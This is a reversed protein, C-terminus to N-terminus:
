PADANMADFKRWFLSRLKYRISDSLDYDGLAASLDVLLARDVDQPISPKSTVLEARREVGSGDLWTDLVRGAIRDMIEATEDDTLFDTRVSTGLPTASSCAVADDTLEAARIEGAPSSGVRDPVPAARRALLSPSPTPSTPAVAAAAAPNRPSVAADLAETSLLDLGDAAARLNRSVGHPEGEHTRVALVIVQVGHAQAEEVAETLDDDGSVLYIARAATNRAQAILDLGMRLDVGKQEGNYGTRGLRLKVRPILGIREQTHDPIGKRASDYWHVRLLPLGSGETAHSILATIIVEHDAEIGNRLSTGTARKAMATLLYGADVHM